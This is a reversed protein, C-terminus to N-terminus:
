CPRVQAHWYKGQAAVRVHFKLHGIAILFPDSEDWAGNAKSVAVAAAILEGASKPGPEAEAFGVESARLVAVHARPRDELLTRHVIMRQSQEALVTSTTLVFAHQPQSSEDSRVRVRCFQVLRQNETALEPAVLLLWNDDGAVPAQRVVFGWTIEDIKFDM